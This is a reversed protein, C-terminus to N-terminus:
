RPLYPCHHGALYLCAPQAALQAGYHDFIRLPKGTLKCRSLMQHRKFVRFARGGRKRVALGWVTVSTASSLYLSVRDLDRRACVGGKEHEALVAPLYHEGANSLVGALGLREYRPADGNARRSNRNAL